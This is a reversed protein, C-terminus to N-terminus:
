SNLIIVLYYPLWVLSLPPKTRTRLVVIRPLFSVPPSFSLSSSTERDPERVGVTWNEQKGTDKKGERERNLDRPYQRSTLNKRARSERWHWISTLYGNVVGNPIPLPSFSPSLFPRSLPLLASHISKDQNTIWLNDLIKFDRKRELRRRFRRLV